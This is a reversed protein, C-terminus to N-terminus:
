VTGDHGEWGRQPIRWNATKGSLTRPLAKGFVISKPIAAPVLREALWTKLTQRFHREAQEDGICDSKAPVVFAKLRDGEEPCMLRVACDCVQPHARMMDAIRAPFVNISSVQVAKDKRKVPIFGREDKWDLIDPMPLPKGSLRRIGWEVPMIDDGATETEVRARRWHPLLAYSKLRDRRIGVAGFETAGYIETMESLFPRRGGAGTGLLGAIIGPACPAGSTVGRLDDPIPITIGNQSMKLISAWFLPFALLMDGACLTRFFDATTLPHLHLAPIGLFKPLILAFAFGYVHHVPAVAVVRKIGAFFGALSRAEEALEGASFSCANPRGTSGSTRFTISFSSKQRLAGYIIDARQELTKAQELSALLEVDLNFFELASTATAQRHEPPLASLNPCDARLFFQRAHAQAMDRVIQAIDGRELLIRM